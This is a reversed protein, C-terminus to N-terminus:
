QPDRQSANNAHVLNGPAVQHDDDRQGGEYAVAAAFDSTSLNELHWLTEPSDPFKFVCADAGRRLEVPIELTSLDISLGKGLAKIAAEKATWLRFFDRIRDTPQGSKLDAKEGSTLVSDILRDLGIPTVLEEVDVGVRGRHSLAILGHRGSHSVNFNVETPVGKVLVFPKGFEGYRFALERSSCGLQECLLARLAARCLTFRRKTEIHVIRERRAQEGECLWGLAEAEWATDPSLDVYEIAIGDIERFSMWWAGAAETLALRPSQGPIESVGM